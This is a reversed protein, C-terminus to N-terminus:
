RRRWWWGHAWHRDTANHRIPRDLPSCDEDEAGILDLPRQLSHGRIAVPLRRKCAGVRKGAHLPARLVFIPELDLDGAISCAFGHKEEEVIRASFILGKLIRGRVQLRNRDEVARACGLPEIQCQMRCEDRPVHAGLEVHLEDSADTTINFTGGSNTPGSVFPEATISAYGLGAGWFWHWDRSNDYRRELWGSLRTFSNSGDIAKQAPDQVIGLERQPREYDFTMDDISGGFHWQDKWRWGFVVGGGVM